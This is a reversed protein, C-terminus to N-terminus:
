KCSDLTKLLTSAQITDSTIGLLDAVNGSTTVTQSTTNILAFGIPLRNILANNNKSEAQYAAHSTVVQEHLTDLEQSIQRYPQHIKKAAFLSTAVSVLTASFVVAGISYSTELKVM